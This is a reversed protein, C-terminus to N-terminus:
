VNFLGKEITICYEQWDNSLVRALRQAIGKSFTPWYKQWADLVGQWFTILFFCDMKNSLSMVLSAATTCHM